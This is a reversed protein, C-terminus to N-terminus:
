TKSGVRVVPRLWSGLAAYSCSCLFVLVCSGSVGQLTLRRPRWGTEAVRHEDSGAHQVGVGGTKAERDRPWASGDM